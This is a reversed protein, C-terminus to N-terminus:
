HNKIFNLIKTILPQFLSYLLYGIAGGLVNTILDTIDSSRLDSLLPQLLEISLSLLFTYLITRLLSPKKQNVLPFLIGFPITMLINLAIERMFNGRGSIVDIFPTLNMPIYPHNFIFPLSTVIPMLTFYLVFVLYVYMTTNILLTDKGRAKWKKFFIFFYVCILIIFDILDKM